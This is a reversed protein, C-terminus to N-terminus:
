TMYDWIFAYNYGRLIALLEVEMHDNVENEKKSAYIIVEDNEDRLILGVGARYQDHFIDWDVNLKLVGSPPPLWCCRSNKMQKSGCEVEKHEKHLSLVCDVVQELRLTNGKHM